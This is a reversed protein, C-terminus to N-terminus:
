KMLVPEVVYGLNRLQQILGCNSFFHGLGVAVFCGNNELLSPLQLMWNENRKKVLQDELNSSKFLNCDKNFSYDINMSAYQDVASCLPNNASTKTRYANLLSPASKKFFFWNFMSAAQRIQEIQFTDTEFYHPTIQLDIGMQQIYADMPVQNKNNVAPCKMKAYYGALKIFIEGPTFKSIDVQEQQGQKFIDVIM